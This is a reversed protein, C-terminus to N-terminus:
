VGWAFDIEKKIDPHLSFFVPCELAAKELKKRISEEPMQPLRLHVTLRGIRRHPLLVMEKEVEAVCGQLDLSFKKATMGMLTVICCGLSAALLDTPSFATGTRGETDSPPETLIKAGSEEHVAETKLNERYYIKIRGM